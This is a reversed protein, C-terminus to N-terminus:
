LHRREDLLPEGTLLAILAVLQRVDNLREYIGVSDLTNSEANHRLDIASGAWDSAASIRTEAALALAVGRVNAHARSDIKRANCYVAIANIAAYWADISAEQFKGEDM